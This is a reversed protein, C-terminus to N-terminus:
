IARMWSQRWKWRLYSNVIRQQENNHNKVGKVFQAWGQFPTQTIYRAYGRWNAVTTIRLKRLDKALDRWAMFNKQVFRALQRQLM